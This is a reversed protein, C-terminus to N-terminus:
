TKYSGRFDITQRGDTSKLEKCNISGNVAKITVAMGITCEGAMSKFTVPSGALGASTALTSQIGATPGLTRTVSARGQGDTTTSTESVSGGGDATWSIPAGTIPNGFADTVEVVLPNPLATGAPGTQGDGSVDTIGNASSALAVVTFAAEVAAPGEPAIVRAEGAAEGVQSGLTIEASARGQADTSITDPEAVAGSLDIVVTAGAVPRDAVDLVEVILPKALAEGVRGSLGNGQVITIAAPEGEGPLV